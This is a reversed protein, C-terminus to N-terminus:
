KRGNAHAKGNKEEPLPLSAIHALSLESPLQEVYPAEHKPHAREWLHLCALFDQEYVQEDYEHSAFEFGRKHKSGLRLVSAHTVPIGMVHCLRAYVQTQVLATEYIAKGNKIDLVHLQDGIAVIRDLTGAIRDRTDYVTREVTLVEPRFDEHFHVYSLLAKAMEKSMDRTRLTAGADLEESARHVATGFRAREDRIAEGNAGNSAIWNLLIADKPYAYGLIGTVGRCHAM